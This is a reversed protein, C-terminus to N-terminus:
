KAWYRRNKFQKFKEYSLAVTKLTVLHKKKIEELNDLYRGPNKFVLM